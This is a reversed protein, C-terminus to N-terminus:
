RLTGGQWQAKYNDRDNVIERKMNHKVIDRIWQRFETESTERKARNCMWCCAVVNDRTYGRYNDLRDIGNYLYESYSNTKFTQQPPRGCYDCISQFLEHAEDKSLAWEVGRRFANHRYNGILENLASEGPPKRNTSPRGINGLGTKKIAEIQLCGCSRTHGTRLDSARVAITAGCSCECRWVVMKAPTRGGEEIVTLRGFTQGKLDIKAPM